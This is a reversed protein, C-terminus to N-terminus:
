EVSIRIKQGDIDYLSLYVPIGLRNKDVRKIGKYIKIGLSNLKEEVEKVTEEPFKAKDAVVKLSPELFKKLLDKM